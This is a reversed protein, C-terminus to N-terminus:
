NLMKYRIVTTEFWKSFILKVLLGESNINAMFYPYLYSDQLIAKLYVSYQSVKSHHRLNNTKQYMYSQKLIKATIEIKFVKGKGSERSLFIYVMPHRWLWQYLVAMMSFRINKMSSLFFCVFFCFFFVFFFFCFFFFMSIVVFSPFPITFFVDGQFVKALLLRLLGVLNPFLLSLDVGYSHKQKPKGTNIDNTTKRIELPGEM